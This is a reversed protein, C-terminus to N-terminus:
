TNELIWRHMSVLPFNQCNRTLVRLSTSSRSAIGLNRSIQSYSQRKSFLEKVKYWMILKKTSNITLSTNM